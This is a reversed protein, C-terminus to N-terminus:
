KISKSYLFVDERKQWGNSSWFANGRDNDAVVFLHCKSIGEAKLKELSMDVLKRGIGKGRYGDAVAVHYISGRRGDHGCMITGIIKGDHRCVYSFGENRELFREIKERTDASGIRVGSTNRWLELIEDYDNITMEHISVDAFSM